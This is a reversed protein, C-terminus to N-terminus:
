ALSSKCIGRLFNSLPSIMLFFPLSLITTVLVKMRVIIARWTILMIHPAISSIELHM